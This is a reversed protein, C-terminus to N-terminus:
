QWLGTSVYREGTDSLVTVLTRRGGEAALRLAVDVFAGSSPGVYLGLEALRRCMAAAQELSVPYRRNILKQDLLPPV